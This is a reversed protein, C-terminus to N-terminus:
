GLQREVQIIASTPDWCNLSVTFASIVFPVLQYWSTLADNTRVLPYRTNMICSPKRKTLEPARLRLQEGTRLGTVYGGAQRQRSCQLEVLVYSYSVRACCPSTERSGTERNVKTKACAQLQCYPRDPCPRDPTDAQFVNHVHCTRGQVPEVRLSIAPRKAM